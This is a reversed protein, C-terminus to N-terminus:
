AAQVYDNIKEDQLIYEQLWKIIEINKKFNLTMWCKGFHTILFLEAHNGVLSSVINFLHDSHETSNIRFYTSSNAEHIKRMREFISWNAPLDITQEKIVMRYCKIKHIFRIRCFQIENRIFYNEVECADNRSIINQKSNFHEPLFEYTEEIMKNIFVDEFNSRKMCM